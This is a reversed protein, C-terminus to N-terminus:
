KEEVVVTGAPLRGKYGLAAKAQARAESKTHAKFRKGLVIWSRLPKLERKERKVKPRPLVPQLVRKLWDFRSMRFM